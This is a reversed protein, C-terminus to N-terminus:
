NGRKCSTIRGEYIACKEVEIIYSLIIINEGFDPYM